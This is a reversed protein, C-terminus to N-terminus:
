GPVPLNISKVDQLLNDLVNLSVMPGTTQDGHHKCSIAGARILSFLLPRCKSAQWKQEYRPWAKYSVAQFAAQVCCFWHRFCYACSCCRIAAIPWPFTHIMFRIDLSEPKHADHHIPFILQACAVSVNFDRKYHWSTLICRITTSQDDLTEQLMDINCARWKWTNSKHCFIPSDCKEFHIESWIMKVDSGIPRLSAEPHQPDFNQDMNSCWIGTIWTLMAVLMKNELGDPDIRV